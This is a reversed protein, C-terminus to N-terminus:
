YEGKIQNIILKSDGHISITKAELGKLLHLGFTLAEYKAVNNTCQLSIKYSYKKSIGSKTDLIWVGARVGEKNDLGDFDM